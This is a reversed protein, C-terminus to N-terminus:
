LIIRGTRAVSYGGLAEVRQKFLDSHIIELLSQIADSGFYDEPIVLDYQETVVPIFDLALAKAAAYIGLGVDALGSLVAAAVSMHTFEENDYGAITGPDIGLENLRYDLLIRTGSGGQRNIFSVDARVLDDLGQIRKPNGPLVMLGQERNVLHVLRASIQPLFRKLYSINYTGDEADLLHTGAMHCLGKKVAMLGGMSGVHSSSLTWGGPAAKLLDALVDLTNDHSGVAVITRRISSLPRLLEAPVPELANLGELQNPIRIIGDAETLSTISGAGRPLTTAVIRKGVQGLKVRVFEEVGLKSAMKRTPEVTV